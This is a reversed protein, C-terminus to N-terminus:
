LKVVRARPVKPSKPEDPPHIDPHAFDPKIPPQERVIARFWSWVGVTVFIAVVADAFTGPTPDRGGAGIYIAWGLTVLATCRVFPSVTGGTDPAARAPPM